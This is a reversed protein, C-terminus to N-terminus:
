SHSAPTMGLGSFKCKDYNQQQAVQCSRLGVAKCRQLYSNKVFLRVGHRNRGPGGEVASFLKIWADHTRVLGKELVLGSLISTNGRSGTERGGIIHDDHGDAHQVLDLKEMLEM